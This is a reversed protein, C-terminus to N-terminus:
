CSELHSNQKCKEPSIHGIHLKREISWGQVCLSSYSSLVMHNSIKGAERELASSM